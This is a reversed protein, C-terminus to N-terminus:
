SRLLCITTVQTSGDVCKCIHKCQEDASCSVIEGTQFPSMCIPCANEESTTTTPDRSTDVSRTVCESYALSSDDESVVVSLNTSSQQQQCSDADSAATTQGGAEMIRQCADDHKLIRKSILWDEIISYRDDKQEPSVHQQHPASPQRGLAVLRRMLRYRLIHMVLVTLLITLVVLLIALVLVGVPSQDQRPDYFSPEPRPNNQRTYNSINRIMAIGFDDDDHDDDDYSM